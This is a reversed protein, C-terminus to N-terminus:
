ILLLGPSAARDAVLLTDATGDGDPDPLGGKIRVDVKCCDGLGALM